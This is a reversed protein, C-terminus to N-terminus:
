LVGDLRNCDFWDDLGSHLFWCCGFGGGFRDGFWRFWDRRAALTFSTAHCGQWELSYTLTCSPQAVRWLCGTFFAFQQPGADQASAAM